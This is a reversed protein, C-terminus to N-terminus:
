KADIQGAGSSAQLLGVVELDSDIEQYLHKHCDLLDVVPAKDVPVDLGRIKDKAFLVSAHKNHVESQGLLV